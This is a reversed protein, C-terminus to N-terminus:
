EKWWVGVVAFAPTDDVGTQLKNANHNSLIDDKTKKFYNQTANVLKLLKKRYIELLAM